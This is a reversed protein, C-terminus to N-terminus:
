AFVMRNKNIETMLIDSVEEAIERASQGEAGYVNISIGGVSGTPYGTMLDGNYIPKVIGLDATELVMSGIDEMSEIVSDANAEIGVAMGLPIYKGIQDAMLKSPSHIGFFSKVANFSQKALSLLMDKIASGFNKLGKVVGDIMNKGLSVWDVGKLGDIISKGLTKVWEVVKPLNSVLGVVIKAVLNAGSEIIKPIMPALGVILSTIIKPAEDILMPLTQDLGDILGGILLPAQEVFVPVLSTIIDILATPLTQLINTIVPIINKAYDTLGTILGQVADTINLAETTGSVAGLLNTWSAKIEGLSGQLTESAEKMTTGTVGMRQQTINIAQIITDFSVKEDFNKLTLDKTAKGLVGSDKILRLMESKTGGYGLKLNDLMTYNQKAFGQYASQIASIDTGFKNANDSMDMMAKNAYEVAKDTNGGLSKILSASFSTVQEAYENASVGVSRWSENAYKVIKDYSGKFMTELGGFSQEVAGGESIASSFIKAVGITAILKTATTLFAKGFSSGGNKGGEEADKDFINALKGKIGETSPMVQIYAQGITNQKDAM